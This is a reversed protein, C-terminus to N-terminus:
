QPHLQGLGSTGGSTSQRREPLTKPKGEGFIAWKLMQKLNAGKGQILIGIRFIRGALVVCVVATLVVLVLGLIPQWLPMPGPLGLRMLMVMPTAPPFFSVLTSFMSHPEIMVPRIVFLPICAILSAPTMLNQADKMDNCAAGIAIYISGFMLIAGAQYLVFWNILHRPLVHGYGYYSAICFGVVLYITVISLSVGVMGVLKGMMFQYPTVSGLLVEASRQIKEELVSYTLPMAGVMIVMFMLLSLTIGAAIHLYHEGTKGAIISGDPSRTYPPRQAVKVSRTAWAVTKSALGAREYRWAHVRENIPGEIWRRFDQYMPNNSHYVVFEDQDSQDARPNFVGDFIEVFGTLSGQRARDSLRARVDDISSDGIRVREIAFKPKVQKRPGSDDPEVPAFIGSSNYEKAAAAIADFLRGSHDIIAFHRDEINVQDKFVVAAILGASGMVPMIVLSIIFTKTRVAAQYERVAIVLTKRM